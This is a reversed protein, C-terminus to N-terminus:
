RASEVSVRRTVQSISNIEWPGHRLHRDEEEPRNRGRNPPHRRVLFRSPERGARRVVVNRGPVPTTIRNQRRKGTRRPLFAENSRAASLTRFCRSQRSEVMRRGGRPSGSEAGATTTCSKMM